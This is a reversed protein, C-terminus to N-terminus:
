VMEGKSDQEKESERHRRKKKKKKKKKKSKKVSKLFEQPEDEDVQQGDAKYKSEWDSNVDDLTVYDNKGKMAGAAIKKQKENYAIVKPKLPETMIHAKQEDENQVRGIQLQVNEEPRKKEVHIEKRGGHRKVSHKKLPSNSKKKKRKIEKKEEEKNKCIVVVMGFTVTVFGISFHIMM